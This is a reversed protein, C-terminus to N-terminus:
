EMLIAFKLNLEQRLMKEDAFDCTHVKSYKMLIKGSKDIVFATNQPQTKGKTFSTLVVGINHEKAVQCIKM